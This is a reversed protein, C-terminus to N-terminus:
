SDNVPSLVRTSPHSVVLYRANNRSLLLEPFTVSTGSFAPVRGFAATGGAAIPHFEKGPLNRTEDKQVQRCFDESLRWLNTLAHRSGTLPQDLRLVLQKVM